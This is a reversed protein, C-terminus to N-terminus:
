ACASSGRPQRSCRGRAVELNDWRHERLNPDFMVPIGRDLALRRARMTLEREREGVLTNSGFALRRRGGARARSSAGRLLVHQSGRTTSTSTPSATATSPSSPSRRESAPSSHSRRPASARRPWGMRWGTASRTTASGASSSSEAGSRAVSVAVNALAGGFCPRFADADAPSDLERECVLDVIAEGLCLIM